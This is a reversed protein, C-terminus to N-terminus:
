YDPCLSKWPPARTVELQPLRAPQSDPAKLLLLVITYVASRICHLLFKTSPSCVRRQFARLLVSFYEPLRSGPQRLFQHQLNGGARWIQYTCMVFIYAPGFPSIFNLSPGRLVECDDPEWGCRPKRHGSSKCHSAAQGSSSCFM